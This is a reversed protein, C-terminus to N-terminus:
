PQRDRQLTADIAADLAEGFTIVLGDFRTPMFAAPRGTEIPYSRLKRYRAADAEDAQLAERAASLQQQLQAKQVMLLAIDDAQNDSKALLTDYDEYRVFGGNPAVQSMVDCEGSWCSFDFREVDNMQKSMAQINM